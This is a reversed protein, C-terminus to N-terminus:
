RSNELAVEGDLARKFIGCMAITRQHACPIALAKPVCFRSVMSVDREGLVFFEGGTVWGAELAGNAKRGRIAEPKGKVSSNGGCKDGVESARTLAM